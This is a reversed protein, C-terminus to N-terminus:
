YPHWNQVDRIYLTGMSEYIYYNRLRPWICSNWPIKVCFYWFTNFMHLTFKSGGSLGKLAGTFTEAKLELKM